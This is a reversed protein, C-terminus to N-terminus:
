ATLGVAALAERRDLFIRENVVWGGALTLLAAWDTDFAAGSSTGSGKMRGITLVQSAGVVVLEESEFRLDLAGLAERQVAIRAQRNRTDEFGVSALGPDLVSIVQPHYLAFTVELDGRNFAAWATAVARRMVARRVRSRPPLRMVARAVTTALRPSMLAVREDLGRRTAARTTLPERTIQPDDRRVTALIV